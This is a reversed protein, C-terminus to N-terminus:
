VCVCLLMIVRFGRSALRGSPVVLRRGLGGDIVRRVRVIPLVLRTFRRLRSSGSVVVAVVIVCSAFAGLLEAWPVTVFFRVRMVQSPRLCCSPIVVSILECVGVFIHIVVLVTFSLVVVVLTPVSFM